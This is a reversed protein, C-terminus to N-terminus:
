GGGRWCAHCGCWYGGRGLGKSMRTGGGGEGEIGGGCFFRRAQRELERRANKQASLEDRAAELDHYLGEEARLIGEDGGGGGDGDGGRLARAVSIKARREAEELQGDTEQLQSRLARM